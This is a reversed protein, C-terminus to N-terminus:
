RWGGALWDAVEGLRGGVEAYDVLGLAVQLDLRRGLTELEDLREAAQLWDSWSGVGRQWRLRTAQELQKAQHWERLRADEVEGRGGLLLEAQARRSRTELELEEAEAELARARLEAAQARRRRDGALDPRWSARLGLFYEPEIARDFAQSGYAGASGVVDLRWADERRAVEAGAREGRAQQRRWEVAVSEGAAAEVAPVPAGAATWGVWSRPRVPRGALVSLVGSQERLRLGAAAQQREVGALAAELQERQIAREVGAAHRRAVVERLELWQRRREDLADWDAWAMGADLYVRTVEAQRRLLGVEAELGAGRRRERLEVRQAERAGDALTWTLEAVADGRVGTGVGREEGPRARQGGDGGASFEVKPLGERALAQELAVLAEQRLEGARAAPVESGALELVETLDVAALGAGDGVDEAAAQSRLGTVALALGCGALAGALCRLGHNGSILWEVQM